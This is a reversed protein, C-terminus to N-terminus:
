FDQEAGRGLLGVDDVVHHLTRSKGREDKKEKSKRGSLHTEIKIMM